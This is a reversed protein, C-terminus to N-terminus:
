APILGWKKHAGGKARLQVTVHALVRRQVRGGSRRRGGTGAAPQAAQAPRDHDARHDQDHGHTQEEVQGAPAVLGGVIRRDVAGPHRDAAANGSPHEGHGDMIAFQDLSALDQEADIRTWELGGDVLRFGIEGRGPQLHLAQLGGIMLALGIQLGGLVIQGIQLALGPTLLGQDGGAGGGLGLRRLQGALGVLGALLDLGRALLQGVGEGGQAAVGINRDLPM